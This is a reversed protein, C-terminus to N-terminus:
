LAAGTLPDAFPHVPIRISDLEGMVAVHLKKSKGAVHAVVGTLALGKKYSLGMSRFKDEVLAATKVEKYGLEPNRLITEAIETIEKARKEISGIVKKKLDEKTAM